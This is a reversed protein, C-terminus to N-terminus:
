DNTRAAIPARLLVDRGGRRGTKLGFQIITRTLPRGLYFDMDRVPIHAREGLLERLAADYRVAELFAHAAPGDLDSGMDAALDSLHAYDCRRDHTDILEWIWSAPPIVDRRTIRDKGYMAALGTTDWCALARCEAPRDDYIGCSNDQELFPCLWGPADGKLKLLENPLPLLDGAIQDHVLEGLRLTIVTDPGLVGRAFLPMDERHLAPGGKHCCAGCQECRDRQTM